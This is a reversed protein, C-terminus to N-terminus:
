HYWSQLHVMNKDYKKQRNFKLDCYKLMMDVPGKLETPNLQSGENCLRVKVQFRTMPSQM